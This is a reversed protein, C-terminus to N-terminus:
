FFLELRDGADALDGKHASQLPVDADPEVRGLEVFLIQGDAVDDRGELSFVDLKGRSPELRRAALDIDADEALGDVEFRQALDDDALDPATGNIDAVDGQDLVAELIDPPM